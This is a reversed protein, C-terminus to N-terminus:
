INKGCNNKKTEMVARKLFETRKQSLSQALYKEAVSVNHIATNFNLNQAHEIILESLRVWNGPPHMFKPSLLEPIGGVNSAICVKGRSMAEILTRPLGETLSPQIFMDLEDLFPLIGSAGPPLSGIIQVYAGLGRNKIENELWGYDGTGVMRLRIPKDLRKSKVIHEIARIADLHGKYKVNFAGILGIELTPREQEFLRTLAVKDICSNISVNSINTNRKNNPYRQQLFSETVYIVFPATAVQKRMLSRRIPAMIKGFISGHNKLADFPCGVVEVVFPKGLKKCVDIAKHGLNTPLRIIAFDIASIQARLKNELEKSKLIWGLTGPISHLNFSVMDGSSQVMSKPQINSSRGVVVLSDCVNLYRQWMAYPFGGYTYTNGQFQYFPADSVFIGRLKQGFQSFDNDMQLRTKLFYKLFNVSGNETTLNGSSFM